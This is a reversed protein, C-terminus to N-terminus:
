SSTPAPVKGAGMGIAGRATAHSTSSMTLQCSVHLRLARTALTVVVTVDEVSPIPSVLTHRIKFGKDAQRSYDGSGAHRAAADQAGDLSTTKRRWNLNPRMSDGPILGVDHSPLVFADSFRLQGSGAGCRFSFLFIFM